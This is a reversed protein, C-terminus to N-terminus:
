DMSLNLKENSNEQPQCLEERTNAVKEHITKIGQEAIAIGHHVTSGISTGNV